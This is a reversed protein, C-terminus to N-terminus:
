LKKDKIISMMKTIRHNLGSKTVHPVMIAALQSLSYEPYELLLLATAKLEEDFLSLKDERQLRRLHELLKSKSDTSRRLNRITCNNQRNTQNSIDRKIYEDQYAFYVDKLGLLGFFDGVQERSRYYLLERGARVATHPPYFVEEFLAALARARVPPLFDLRLQKEPAAPYGCSLFIGRLLYTRCEKCRMGALVNQYDKEIESLYEAASKSSFLVTVAGGAGRRPVARPELHYVAQTLKLFYPVVEEGSLRVSIETERATAATLLFGMLLAKRCCPQRPLDVCLQAKIESGYSM